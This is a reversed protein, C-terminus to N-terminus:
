PIMVVGGGVPQAADPGQGRPAAGPEEGPAPVGVPVLDAPVRTRTEGPTPTEAIAPGPSLIVDLNAHVVVPGAVVRLREPPEDLLIRHLAAGAGIGIHM